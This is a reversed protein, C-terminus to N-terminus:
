IDNNLKRKNKNITERMQAQRILKQLNSSQTTGKKRGSKLKEFQMMSNNVLKNNTQAHTLAVALADAADDPRPIDKLNLMVKTMYQVQRKEAKGTGTIALKIQAPTYEYLESCERVAACVIVGRAEAVKIGTTINTNFFLEEVAVADPNHKDILRKIAEDIIALRIPFTEDTPTKIAGYDILTCKGRQDKEIVGYGVIGYGPDIGLIKM